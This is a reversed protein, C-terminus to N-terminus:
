SQAPLTLFLNKEKVLEINEAKALDHLLQVQSELIELPVISTIIKGQSQMFEIAQQEHEALVPAINIKNLTGEQAAKLEEESDLTNLIFGRLKAKPKPQVQLVNNKADWKEVNLNLVNDNQM